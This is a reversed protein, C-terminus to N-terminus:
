HPAYEVVPKGDLASAKEISQLSFGATQTVRGDDVQDTALCGPRKGAMSEPRGDSVEKPSVHATLTLRALPGRPRVSGGRM